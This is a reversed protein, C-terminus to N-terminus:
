FLPETEPEQPLTLRLFPLLDQYKKDGIGKVNKLDEPFHFRYGQDLYDLYAQATAPGIGPLADLTDMDLAYPDLEGFSPAPTFVPAPASVAIQETKPFRIHLLADAAMVALLCFCAVAIFLLLAKEKKM